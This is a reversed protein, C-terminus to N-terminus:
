AAVVRTDIAGFVPRGDATRAEMRLTDGFRMFGTSANGQDLIEMGRREGICSSGVERFNENSVTGGGIITGASLARTRTIYAILDAFSHQMPYGNAAGFRKENWDVELDLAIRENRWADGLEDPTVAVPAMSCPPKAHLWGFGAKLEAPAYNRLSWDNIQVLFLIHKAAQEARTGLPVDNVIVGFEGEFDIGEEESVFPVDDCAGYFRDSVGQYIMPRGDSPLEINFAAAMLKLHSAYASGDLWQWARPLPAMPQRFPVEGETPGGKLRQSLVRLREEVDSWREIASQLTPAIGDAPLARELDASVVVLRGDRTGDNLTGLKM